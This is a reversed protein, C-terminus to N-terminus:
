SFNIRVWSEPILDKEQESMPRGYAITNNFWRNPAIVIKNKNNCLWAGWWSYTSSSLIFHDCLSMIEEM